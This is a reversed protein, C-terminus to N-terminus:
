TSPIHSCIVLWIQLLALLATHESRTTMLTCILLLLALRIARAAPRASGPAAGVPRQVLYTSYRLVIHHKPIAAAAAALLYRLEFWVMIYEEHKHSSFKLLVCVDVAM